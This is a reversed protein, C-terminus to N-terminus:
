SLLDVLHCVFADIALRFRAHLEGGGLLDRYSWGEFRHVEFLVQETSDIRVAVLRWTGHLRTGYHLNALPSVGDCLRLTTGALCCGEADAYELNDISRHPLGLTLRSARRKEEWPCPFSICCM